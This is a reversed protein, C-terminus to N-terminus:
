KSTAELPSLSSSPPRPPAYSTYALTIDALWIEDVGRDRSMSLEIAKTRAAVDAAAHAHLFTVLQRLPLPELRLFVLMEQYDTGAVQNPEGPEISVLKDAVGAATAADRLRRNIQSNPDTASGLTGGGGGGVGSQGNFSRGSLQKLQAQSQAFAHAADDAGRSLRNLRALAAACCLAAVVLLAVLLRTTRVTTM